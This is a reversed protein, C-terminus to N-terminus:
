QKTYNLALGGILGAIDFSHIYIKNGSIDGEITIGPARLTINPFDCIYVGTVSCEENNTSNVDINTISFFGNNFSLTSLFYFYQTEGRWETGDINSNGEKQCSTQLMILGLLVVFVLQKLKNSDNKNMM